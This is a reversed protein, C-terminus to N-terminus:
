AKITESPLIYQQISTQQVCYVSLPESDDPTSLLVFSLVPGDSVPLESYFDFDVSEFSDFSRRNGLLDAFTLGSNQNDSNTGLFSVPTRVALCILSSRAESGLVLVNLNEDFDMRVRKSKFPSPFQIEYVMEFTLTNVIAIHNGGKFGLVLLAPGVYQVNRPDAGCLMISDIGVTEDFVNPEFSRLLTGDNTKYFYVECEDTCVAVVSADPSFSFDTISAASEDPLNIQFFNTLDTIDLGSLGSLGQLMAVTSLFLTRDTSVAFMDNKSAWKARCFDFPHDSIKLVDDFTWQQSDTHFSVLTLSFNNAHLQLLYSSPKDVISAPALAIDQIEEVFDKILAMNGTMQNILRVKNGRVQYSIYNADVAIFSGPGSVLHPVKAVPLAPLVDCDPLKQPLVLKAAPLPLRLFRRSTNPSPSRPPAPPRPAAPAFGLSASTVPSEAPRGVNEAAKNGLLINKLLEDKKASGDSGSSTKPKLLLNKLDFKDM